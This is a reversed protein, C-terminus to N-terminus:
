GKRTTQQLKGYLEALKLKNDCDKQVSIYASTEIQKKLTKQVPIQKKKRITPKEAYCIEFVVRNIL